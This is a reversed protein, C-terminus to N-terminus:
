AAFGLRRAALSKQRQTRLTLLGELEALVQIELFRVAFGGDFHRVVRGPVSGIALLNGIPPQVAVLVAAGSCSMDKIRCDMHHEAGLILVANAERPTVRKHVRRDEARGRSKRNLWDIRADIGTEDRQEEVFKVIFGNKLKREIVGRRIGITDFRLAVREGREVAIETTIVARSTAVSRASFAFSQADWQKGSRDLFVFCGPVDGIFRADSKPGNHGPTTVTM